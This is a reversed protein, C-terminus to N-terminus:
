APLESIAKSIKTEFSYHNDEKSLKDLNNLCVASDLSINDLGIVNNKYFDFNGIADMKNKSIVNVNTYDTWGVQNFIQNYLQNRWENIFEKAKIYSISNNAIDLRMALNVDEDSEAVTKALNLLQDVQGISLDYKLGIALKLNNFNIDLCQCSILKGDLYQCVVNKGDVFDISMEKGINQKNLLTYTNATNQIVVNCQKVISVLRKYTTYNCACIKYSTTCTFENEDFKISDFVIDNVYYNDIKAKKYIENKVDDLTSCDAFVQNYYNIMSLETDNFIVNATKINFGLFNAGDTLLQTLKVKLNDPTTEYQGAFLVNTKGEVVGSVVLAVSMNSIFIVKNLTKNDEM